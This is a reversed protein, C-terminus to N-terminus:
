LIGFWTNFWVIMVVDCEDLNIHYDLAVTQDDTVTRVM